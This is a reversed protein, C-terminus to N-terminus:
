MGYSLVNLRYHLATQRRYSFMKNKKIVAKDDLRVSCNTVNNCHWAWARVTAVHLM